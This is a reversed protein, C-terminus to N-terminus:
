CNGFLIAETERNVCGNSEVLQITYYGCSQISFDLFDFYNLTITGSAPAPPWIDYEYVVIDDANTVLLTLGDCFYDIELFGSYWSTPNYDFESTCLTPVDCPDNTDIDNDLTPSPNPATTVQRRKELTFDQEFDVDEKTCSALTTLLVAVLLFLNKTYTM